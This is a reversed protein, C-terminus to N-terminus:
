SVVLDAGKGFIIFGYHKIAWAGLVLKKIMKGGAIKLCPIGNKL